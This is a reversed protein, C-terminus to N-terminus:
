ASRRGCTGEAEHVAPREHAARRAGRVVAAHDPYRQLLRTWSRSPRPTTARTEPSWRSTTTPRWSSPSCVSARGCIRPQRTSVDRSICSRAWRTSFSRTTRAAEQRATRASGQAADFQRKGVKAAALTYQYSPEDPKLSAAKTLAPEADELLDMKLCVRGFGLLIEPEEPEIKRARMWYSLSRELEGRQEAVAAAQRLAPLSDPKLTLALDYADLARAPDKNLLYAGALNFALEYSPPGTQRARELVDVAEPLADAEVLLLAFRISWDQPVDSLRRWDDVLGVAARSEGDESLGDRARVARRAVAQVRSPRTRWSWRGSTTERRWRSRALALRATANSPDLELVRRYIGLALEPKGQLTYVQALTLHAGLLRPELGIAKQLLRRERRAAEASASHRGARFLRRSAHGSRVAGAPGASPKRWGARSSWCRRKRSRRADRSTAHRVQTDISPRSGAHAVASPVPRARVATARPLGRTRPPRAARGIATVRHRVLQRM